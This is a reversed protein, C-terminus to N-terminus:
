STSRRRPARTTALLGAESSARSSTTTARTAPSCCASAAARPSCSSARSTTPRTTRTPRSGASPTGPPRRTRRRAEGRPLEDWEDHLPELQAAHPCVVTLKLTASRITRVGDEPSCSRATSRSTSRGASRRRRQERLERGQAVSAVVALGATRAKEADRDAVPRPSCRSRATARLRRLRQRPHRRLSNHWLTCVDYSLPQQLGAARRRARRDITSCATSTTTTSTASWRSRSRCRAAAPAREARLEELRPQLSKEYVHARARRRHRRAAPEAATGATCCCRTATSRGALAELTFLM